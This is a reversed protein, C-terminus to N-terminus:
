WTNQDIHADMAEEPTQTKFVQKSQGRRLVQKADEIKLTAERLKNYLADLDEDDLLGLGVTLNEMEHKITRIQNNIHALYGERAARM